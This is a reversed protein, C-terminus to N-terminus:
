PLDHLSEGKQWPLLRKGLVFFAEDLLSGLIGISFIGVLVIDPRSLQEADLILYGLGSTAAILEAGILSRWSYGLGLRIGLFIDPLAAPLLLRFFIARPPLGFVRGVEILKPDVTRIGHETNLFVPFFTAMVIVALKPLEGIGFWLILLPITAIPPIHRFFEFLPATVRQLRPSRGSVIGLPFAFLFALTFGAVVRGFSVALHKALDGSALLAVFARAVSAPPPVLFPPFLALMSCAQWASLLLLPFLWPTLRHM